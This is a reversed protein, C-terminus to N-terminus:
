AVYESGQGQPEPEVRASRQHRQVDRLHGLVGEKTPSPAYPTEPILSRESAQAPGAPPANPRQEVTVSHHDILTGSHRDRGGRQPTRALPDPLHHSSCLRRIITVFLAGRNVRVQGARREQRLEALAEFVLGQPCSRAILRYCGLSHADETQALIEGALWEEREQFVPSLSTASVIDAVSTWDHHTSREEMYPEKVANYTKNKYSKNKETQRNSMKPLALNADGSRSPIDPVQGEAPDADVSPRPKSWATLYYVNTKGLGRRKVRLLSLKVLEQLYRVVSRVGAGIDAALREQGPFCRDQSHAYSLLMVYALKAGPSVDGRRLITNPVKTYDERLSEEEIIIEDGHAQVQRHDRDNTPM